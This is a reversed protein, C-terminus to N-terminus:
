TLSSFPKLACGLGVRERQAWHPQPQTRTSGQPSLACRAPSSTAKHSRSWCHCTRHRLDERVHSRVVMELTGSLSSYPTRTHTCTHLLVWECESASLARVCGVHRREPEPSPVTEARQGSHTGDEMAPVLSVAPVRSIGAGPGLPSGGGRPGLPFQPGSRQHITQFQHSTGWGRLGAGDRGPVLVPKM